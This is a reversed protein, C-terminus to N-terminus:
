QQEQQRRRGIIIIDIIGDYGCREKTIRKSKNTDDDDCSSLFFWWSWFLALDGEGDGNEGGDRLGERDRDTETKTNYLRVLAQANKVHQTM